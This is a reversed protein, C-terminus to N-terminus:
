PSVLSAVCPYLSSVEVEFRYQSVRLIVGVQCSILQVDLSPTAQAVVDKCCHTTPISSRSTRGISTIDLDISM